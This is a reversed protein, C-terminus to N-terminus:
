RNSLPQKKNNCIEDTQRGGLRKRILVLTSESSVSDTELFLFCTTGRSDSFYYVDSTKTLHLFLWRNGRKNINWKNLTKSSPRLCKHQDRVDEMIGHTGLQGTIAKVGKIQKMDMGACLGRWRWRRCKDTSSQFKLLEPVAEERQACLSIITKAERLFPRGDVLSM